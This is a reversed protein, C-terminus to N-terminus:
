HTVYRWYYTEVEMFINNEVKESSPLKKYKRARFTM